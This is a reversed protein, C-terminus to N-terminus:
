CDNTVDARLEVVIRGSYQDGVSIDFFCRPNKRAKKVPPQVAEEAVGSTKAVDETDGDKSDPVANQVLWDDSSWVARSSSKKSPKAINVAITRGFLESEHMNDIAAAADEVLEFEIFAFGRHKNSGYDMPIQIDVVDGFPIFASHLIKEGVEETLGGVFIIKKDAM